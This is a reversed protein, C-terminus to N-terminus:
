KRQQVYAIAIGNASARMFPPSQGDNYSISLHRRDLWQLQPAPHTADDHFVITASGNGNEDVTGGRRVVHVVNLEGSDVSMPDIKELVAVMSGDPSPFAAATKVVTEPADNWIGAVLALPVAVALALWVAGATLWADRGSMAQMTRTLSSDVAMM